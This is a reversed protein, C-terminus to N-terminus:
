EEIAAMNKRNRRAAPHMLMSTGTSAHFYAARDRPKQWHRMCFGNCVHRSFFTSMGEPGLDTVGYSRDRSIIVPDTLVAGRGKSLIGGQLDCLLFQGANKHYSYHSLAQMVQLPFM